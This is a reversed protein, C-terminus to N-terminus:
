IIRREVSGLRESKVGSFTDLDFEETRRNRAIADGSEDGARDVDSPAARHAHHFGVVHLRSRRKNAKALDNRAVRANLVRYRGEIRCPPKMTPCSM